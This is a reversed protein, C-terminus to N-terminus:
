DTTHVSLFGLFAPQSRLPTSFNQLGYSLAYMAVYSINFNGQATSQLTASFDGDAGTYNPDPSSNSNSAFTRYNSANLGTGPANRRIEGQV